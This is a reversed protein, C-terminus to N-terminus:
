AAGVMTQTQEGPGAIGLRLNQGNPGHRLLTM